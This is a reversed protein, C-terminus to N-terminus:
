AVELRNACLHQPAGRDQWASETSALIAARIKPTTTAQKHPTILM